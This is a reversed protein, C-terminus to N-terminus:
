GGALEVAPEARLVLGIECKVLADRGAVCSVTHMACSLTLVLGRTVWTWTKSIMRFCKM